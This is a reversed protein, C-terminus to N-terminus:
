DVRVEDKEGRNTWWLKICDYSFCGVFACGWAIPFPCNEIKFYDYCLVLALAVIFSFVVNFLIMSLIKM